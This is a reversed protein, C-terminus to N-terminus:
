FLTSQPNAEFLSEMDSGLAKSFVGAIPKLQKDVYHWYDIKATRKSVPQPGEVTWLYRVLGREKTWGLLEAAKAHPPKSKTYEALPKRLAKRYVLKPDLKGAFLDELLEQIHAQIEALPKKQFVFGLMRVQFEQALDTWDRRIAEMGKIEIEPTEGEREPVPLGAYGKARGRPAGGALAKAGAQVGRVSPLFFQAYIKEFELELQSRVGYERNVYESLALNVQRAAERGQRHLDEPVADAPVELKVFVSDTDGYLVQHGDAEFRDKCWRLLSQGFGTIAGALEAAAFRCGPTGLVGYFSNMIIKYVYSALKDGRKKAEERNEFFRDLLGPLIGPERRFCAGNPARIVSLDESDACEVLSLPDINFTRIISPYLSKFDFVFVNEHLGPHPELIAGGPVGGTPKVDVGPSPAVFGREHLQEIYLHEFVPISTWAREMNIGTLQCRKLTLDLLGTKELISSLSGPMRWAIDVCRSLTRETCGTWSKARTRM